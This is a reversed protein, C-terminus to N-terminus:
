DHTFETRLTTELWGRVTEATTVAHDEVMTFHNGPVDVVTDATDWHTQWEEPALREDAVPPESSRVLLLPVSLKAPAWGAMLRFYWSMASLRAVDMPAFVEERDFMGGFLEDRFRDLPSDERPLYSDLLVVALPPTGREELLEAAAHALMGGSSSGLLVFPAGAAARLVSDAQVEAVARVSNPLAEGKVFGPAPLAHVDLDGRFPSAFRAYQHVGALAVYSSFCILKPTREGAALQVSGPQRALDAAADFTPRLLAANQLLEFGEKMKGLECATRFLASLTEGSDVTSKAPAASTVNLEARLHAALDEPAPFDFVLTPPLRLGTSAGLANRLEVATLSDFGAVLFGVDPRVADPGAHGLVTAATARVLDLLIAQQDPEPKGALAARLAAEGSVATAASAARRAPRVLGKLVSAVAGGLGTLDLKAPVLAPEALATATDFLALGQEVPLAHVGGRSMRKRDASDLASSMGTEWLGWALAQAPLGRGARHAALADLFANAAAYNGQGPGGFTASVSSFLVFASLNRDATLEHLHWAADVKPRLVADMREPTLSSLVGDDLVGAAHVVAALDPVDALLEALAARDATDCAALRVDAGLATLEDRLDTADAATRSTLVLQRVDHATVLHRALVRGLSGTAGTLLVTGDPGFPRKGTAAETTARTLRAALLAGERVALQPEDSRVAAPLVAASEDHDDLDILRIRGPHESQASRVLGWLPACALDPVDDGAAAAVAGRTVVVLRSAAFRDDALWDQLLSLVDHATARAVDPLAGAAPTRVALVAEPVAMGLDVAAGLADLDVYSECTVGSADLVPGVKLDDDGVVAWRRAVTDAPAATVPRWDLRFLSEPAKRVPRVAGAALPRLVLAGVSAVPRGAPDALSLKVTDHGNPTVTVRVATAGSAHLTVGSWSFPLYNRGAWEAITGLVHLSADLLAPHLGSRAADAHEEPRLAVEAHVEDGLRWAAHLGQFAPGYGFGGDPGGTYLGDLDLPEAGAPPWETVDDPVPGHEAALRGSAHRTWPEDDLRSHVTVPRTGTEDPAGLVVQLQVGDRAPLPLPTEIILEDIGGAGVQEGARLVLEVFGTGPFLTSGAVVHDALWPHTRPSVRGTCVVAGDEANTVSAGLLPHDPRDLGAMTVDGAPTLSFEPWFREHQFAYTPLSAPDGPGGLVTRWDVTSGSVHLKALATLLERPEDRDKRLVATVLEGDLVAAAMATLVGDPGLEVFRTTGLGALTAVADAFRVTGRAQRLWYEPSTLETAPEGTVTSVIPIAPPAFTVGALVRGFEGLMADMAPSHFAHSVRLRRTKRGTWHREVELVGDEVGSVVVSTPGNVAALEVGAPLTPVVEAETAEVALMAGGAPLAQMLRGRAAVVACADPLSWVGAVHAAALEGISHGALRDPRVGWSELLRFLAVEIAFLAPQTYGTQDLLDTDVAELLPRNLHTDFEACVEAFAEAFVPFERRLGAGMGLRQAGQGTFLFATGGEARVGTSVGPAPRDAAVAALGRVLEDHDAGVVVARHAFVTRGALATGIEAPHAAVHSLLREAQDRRAEPTHGSLTWATLARPEAPEAEPPAPAAEVIVHANTGSVGFSSVGARRVRDGDPWPVSESLLRVSGDAWDVHSSPVDAHLTQPLLGNRLALVMKMVGAVGAAAQTHGVNSKISGLWLPRDRDQGYTAILAQAEIPDGLSTGTGHAEVADVDSPELGANALAARIVRQQSPGNPATLGNSAGDQNVASGRVVALVPHGNRRADSLRELVLMGSGEGWGTGDADDSFARCRGDPSLGRQRSFEVFSGPTSLVTVGGALVLSCEGAHLAQIAWHLAVLSSSCATDVTVAPGELGLAYSIRGSLVSAANGTGLYGEASKPSLALLAPYDQGNTGAFVGVPQGRLSEPDIGARELAEWSTELLLRQQPDMALAERPSIGFFAPDFLAADDLFGGERAYSTGESDPDPDYLADLDWGRDAPFGGIADRGEALLTWLEDPTHVGGPFRCAMSVIAIPEDDTRASVPASTAPGADGALHAALANPTAYDYILTAPLRQGTAAALRNRLEVATLSDFGLDKFARDPAVAAANAYGLVLAVATRVAELADGPQEAAPEGAQRARPPVLGAFVPPLVPAAGLVAFDFRIPLVAPEGARCAADFLRLGEGTSLPIMGTAGLRRRDRDALAGTMGGAQEWLGWGLALAPLGHDRRHRALADLWVNAAAYNAQGAPGLTGSISSFVVFATLEAGATLEHLNTVADIKPRLVADLREPTLASVVGDDLVGAVHVVGTLPRDAPITGLLAALADRDAADCAAVVPEAGLETLDAILEAAGDADPGRRSALLLHRVGYRTALHRAVLAGLAGTGGTVLVTGDPGFSASPGSEASTLKALRAARIEGDRLLFQPEGTALAAPLLRAAAPDDLDALVFRGPNEAAASRLLGWVPAQALDTVGDAVAANRTLVVLTRGDFREDALWAQVLRLARHAAEGPTDCRFPAVLVDPLAGAEAVSDLDPHCALAGLEAFLAAGLERHGSGLLAWAAPVPEGAEVPVWDLKLLSDRSAGGVPQPLDPWYTERQFAYTPLAQARAGTFLAGWAARAGRVYVTAVAALATRVEDRDKRLLSAATAGPLCEETMAALVGHPGLELFRTTGADALAAVATAFRVPERVQRVWYDATTLEDTVSRGTVTSIIPLHPRAYTIRAAVQAFEALMPDMLPSHFAHSVTLRRTRRGLAAFHREIEGAAGEEGSVVVADPGNVAALSVAGTLLPTVEDETAQVAVMAGGGPLAQMLRGRAAVLEAADALSFVGAVHAAALEGISHGALHDPTVGWSELLRFLAVEVAFLAPQTYATEDLAEGSAIVTKLPRDLHRDFEACIEDFANAYAQFREYLDHGMGVRQAGQGTFLFATLGETVTGRVCTDEGRALARVGEALEAADGVLVARHEFASRTTALALGIGAPDGDLGALRAAQARLAAESRGSLVWPIVAPTTENQPLAEEAPPAALLVHANTGSVGFASVGAHRVRGNEPWSVPETLVRVDGASWDVRSTPQEVHLTKPLVGNRLALAMKIVGAVGAAAQTHGLNSKISGLWLPTRRDRGYTALLAQAEIPDGLATGTGHAEVADVDSPSLGADALAARIVRQQSPGNPATLGNSAGDSNIASGAVIALVPHGHRRADSLRELLVVGAGEGWGTGDAGDAFAKCRGDAALGQQRSFGIFAGPTTMVTVGGALALDCEGERLAHAAWHLAVLSSSCATDVTVAPGELGLVYSIRGSLVSAANGTSEYGDGVGPVLSLLGPYDQGNTGAFVGVPEGRLSQPDIGARELAEWSTELLLRQQPDMALAERPSIGFFGADFAGADRVFGGQSVYSTGPHDPDPHYVTDLDWGRDDPFDTLTDTGTELVRWLDEPTEVGGPFRCAMSVIAIPEPTASEAERLRERTEHLDATVKRLYGLLKEENM